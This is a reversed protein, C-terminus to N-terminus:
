LCIRYIRLVQAVLAFATSSAYIAITTAAIAAAFGLLLLPLSLLLVIMMAFLLLKFLQQLMFTALWKKRSTCVHLCQTHM